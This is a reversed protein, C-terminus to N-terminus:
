PTKRQMIDDVDLKYTIEVEDPVPGPLIALWASVSEAIGDSIFEVDGKLSLVANKPKHASLTAQFWDDKSGSASVIVARIKNYVSEWNSEQRPYDCTFTCSYLTYDKKPTKKSFYDMDARLLEPTVVSFSLLGSEAEEESEPLHLQCYAEQTHALDLPIHRYKQSM